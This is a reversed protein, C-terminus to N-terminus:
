FLLFFCHAGGDESECRENAGGGRGSRREDGVEGVQAQDAVFHTQGQGVIRRL